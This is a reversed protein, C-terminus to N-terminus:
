MAFKDKTNEQIVHVHHLLNSTNFIHYTTGGSPHHSSQCIWFIIVVKNVVFSSLPIFNERDSIVDHKYTLDKTTQVETTM